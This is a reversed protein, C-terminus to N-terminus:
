KHVRSKNVVEVFVIIIIAYYIVLYLIYLIDM